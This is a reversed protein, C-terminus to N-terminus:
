RLSISFVFRRSRVSVSLTFSLFLSLSRSILITHFSPCPLFPTAPLPEGISPAITLPATDGTRGPLNCREGSRGCRGQLIVSCMYVTFLVSFPRTARSRTSGDRSPEDRNSCWTARREDFLPSLPNTCRPSPRPFVPPSTVCFNISHQGPITIGSQDCQDIVSSLFRRTADNRAQENDVERFWMMLVHLANTQRTGAIARRESCPRNSTLNLYTAAQRSWRDIEVFFFGPIPSLWRCPSPYSCNHGRAFTFRRSSRTTFTREINRPDNFLEIKDCSSISIKDLPFKPFVGEKFSAHKRQLNEFPKISLTVKLTM